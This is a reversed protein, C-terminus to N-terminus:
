EEEKLQNVTQELKDYSKATWEWFEDHIGYGELISIAAEGAGMYNHGLRSSCYQGYMLGLAYLLAAERHRAEKERQAILAILEPLADEPYDFADGNQRSRMAPTGDSMTIYEVDAVRCLVDTLKTKLEIDKKSMANGRQM